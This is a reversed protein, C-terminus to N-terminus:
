PLGGVNSYYGTTRDPPGDRQDGLGEKHERKKTEGETISM